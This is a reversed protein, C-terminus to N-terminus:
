CKLLNMFKNSRTFISMEPLILLLLFLIKCTINGVVNVKKCMSYIIELYKTDSLLTDTDVTIYNHLLPM